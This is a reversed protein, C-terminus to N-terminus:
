GAAEDIAFECPIGAEPGMQALEGWFSRAAEVDFVALRALKGWAVLALPEEMGAFPMVIVHTSLQRGLDELQAREEASVLDPQYYFIVAGHELAHINFIEPVEQRFVGCPTPVAAHPGSAAPVSSYEPPALTGAVIASTSEESLHDVGLDAPESVVYTGSASGGGCGALLLAALWLRRETKSPM